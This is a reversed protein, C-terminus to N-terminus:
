FPIHEEEATDRMNVPRFGLDVKWMTKIGELKDKRIFKMWFETGKGAAPLQHKWSINGAFEDVCVIQGVKAVIEIKKKNDEEDTTSVKAERLLRIEYFYAKEGPRLSEKKENRTLIIGHLIAGEEKIAWLRTQQVKTFGEPMEMGFDQPKNESGNGNGNQNEIEM